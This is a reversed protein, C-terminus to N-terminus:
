WPVQDALAYTRRTLSRDFAANIFYQSSFYAIIWLLYVAAADGAANPCDAACFVASGPATKKHAGPM